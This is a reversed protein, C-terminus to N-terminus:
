ASRHAQVSRVETRMVNRKKQRKRLSANADPFAESARRQWAHQAEGRLQLLFRLHQELNWNAAIAINIANHAAADRAPILLIMERCRALERLLTETDFLWPDPLKEPPRQDPAM